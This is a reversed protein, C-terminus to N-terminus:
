SLLRSKSKCYRIGLGRFSKKSGEFVKNLYKVSTGYSDALAKKNPYEQVTELTILDYTEVAHGNFSGKPIYAPREKYHKKYVTNVDFDEEKIYILGKHSLNIKSLVREPGRGIEEILATISPYEKVREGTKNDFVFIRKKLHDNGKLEKLDKARKGAMFDEFSILSNKGYHQRYSAEQLKLKTEPRIDMGDALKPMGLNYGFERDLSQKVQMWYLERDHLDAKDIVKELVTFLFKDEGYRNWSAQLHSNHHVGDRLEKTHQYKRSKINKSSGVYCKNNVLNLIMYIGQTKLNM